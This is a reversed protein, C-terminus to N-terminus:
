LKVQIRNYMERCHQYKLRQKLIALSDEYSGFEVIEADEFFRVGWKRMKYKSITYIDVTPILTDMPKVLASGFDEVTYIKNDIRLVTNVPFISWDSAIVGDILETGIATKRGYKIHDSESHTYATCRISTPSNKNGSVSSCNVIFFAYLLTFLLRM